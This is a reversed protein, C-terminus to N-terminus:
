LLLRRRGCTEARIGSAARWLAQRHSPEAPATPGLEDGPGEPGAPSVM